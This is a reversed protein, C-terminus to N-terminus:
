HNPTMKIYDAWTKPQPIDARQMTPTRVVGFLGVKLFIEEKGGCFWWRGVRRRKFLHYYHKLHKL